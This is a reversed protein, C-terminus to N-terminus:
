EDGSRVVGPPPPPPAKVARQRPRWLDGHTFCAWIWRAWRIVALALWLAWALMVLRYALLPVSLVFPQPLAGPIRDAFWKLDGRYSGNGAIRMDPPSLLGQKIASFLVVVAAITWLAFGIQGLNHVWARKQPPLRRRWGFALLAGAVLAAAAPPTQSLGLGLLIWQWVSLPALRTRGLAIAILVLVVVFSWFLVAPGMRPGGVMLIWRSDSVTIRVDVNVGPLGLDVPSARFLSTLGVPERFSVGIRQAGPAIPVIVRRGDQRPPQKVGNVTVAEVVAGDPLTLAHEGGRSSRLSLSLNAQTSRIGPSVELGAHDVTLTQGTTGTPKSIAITVKEGPWPRWGPVRAPNNGAAEVPPIGTFDVHWVPSANVFWSESWAASAPSAPAPAELIVEAREALTSTWGLETEGAGLNVQVRGKGVHVGSTVVSEGLLLPVEVVVAAGPSTQRTVRTRVEWKLGLELTREVIVFPPLSAAELGQTNRSGTAGDTASPKPTIRSLQLNGDIRGDETLGEIKWGHASVTVARPLMKFPIQVMERPPLPGEIVVQHSGAAVQLWLQGDGGRTLTAAPKGDLVVTDPLWHQAHGPLPMAAAAVAGVEFRLRLRDPAADLALRGLSACNPHCDPKELLRERLKGLLADDPFEAAVANAPVLAILSLLILAAAAAGPSGLRLGDSLGRRGGFVRLVLLAMLGVRAFGLILNLWPPLLWFKLRQTKDVPGNWNFAVSGWNWRPVGPGTQVMVNPDYSALNQSLRNGAKGYATSAPAAAVKRRLGSGAGAVGLDGVGSLNMGSQGHAGDASGELALGELNKDANGGLVGLIGAAKAQEEAMQRDGMNGQEGEPRPARLFQEAVEEEQYDIGHHTPDLAPHLGVRIEQVAFPIAMVVLVVWTGLRTAGAVWRLRGGPLARVLAEAVLVCLWIWKPAEDQPLVLGLTVLALLGTRWGFIKGIGIGTILLLFLDLLTWRMIWTESVSDAGSAHVLSFGPPLALVASASQFDADWGVAPIDTGSGAIRSEATIGARSQRIEVGEPGDKGLRTIFQDQGGVAVRGLKSESGMALRWGRQFTGAIKDRATFGGGDFDLWLQRQLTLQDAPPNANGRRREALTMTAGTVMLYAPLAKWADPLTTQQPDITPVGEITVTRLAPRAAFVWVEDGDKWPGDPAPRQLKAVPANQRAVLTVTWTGPRLQVRLRGDSEIRVPLQSDIAHPLFGGPLSKGLVVERTKGSVNLVLRTTLLMPVDDAVHRHVAIDLKDEEAIEEAEQKQLFLEGAASRSPFDTKRGLLTLGLLATSTPVPLSEPLRRWAFTGQVTHRGIPLHVVPGDGDGDKEGPVVVAAKGNVKVDLPWTADDGPLAVPGPAFVEVDQTFRGGRADLTLALRGAWVCVDDNDDGGDTLVPCREQEHDHLVWATWPRLAEPIDKGAPLAPTTSPAPGPAAHASTATITAGLGYLGFIAALRVSGPLRANRRTM